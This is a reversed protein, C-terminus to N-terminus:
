SKNKVIFDRILPEAIEFDSEQIFLDIASQIGGFFGVNIGSKYDDQTTSRVGINELLDRLLLVTMETGTYIKVLKNKVKM